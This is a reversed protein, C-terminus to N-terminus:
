SGPKGDAERIHRPRLFIQWLSLRNQTEAFPPQSAAFLEDLRHFKSGRIDAVGLRQDDM